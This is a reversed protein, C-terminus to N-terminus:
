AINGDEDFEYENAQIAETVAEDGTLYEYERELMTFLWHNLDTLAETIGDEEEATVDYRSVHEVDVSVHTDGGYGRGTSVSACLGYFAAQQVKQLRDAIAQLENDNPAYERIAKSAGKAYSYRAVYSSGSGQYYFGSFYVEIEQRTKGNMLPVSKTALEIGLIDCIRAFDDYTADWWDYDLGGERYWDRAREQAADSLEDYTFVETEIIRAM